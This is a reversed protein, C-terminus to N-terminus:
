KDLKREEALVKVQSEELIIAEGDKLLYLQGTQWQAQIQPLLEDRYHPYMEFDILGMGPILSAGPENEGFYWEALTQTRSCAMSGASSGVYVTGAKILEPILTITQTRHMWYLLYSSSGGCCWIIDATKLPTLIDHTKYNELEIVEVEAGESKVIPLTRSTKWSGWAEGNAATVIYAIKKGKLGSVFTNLHGLTTPHKAESALFLKM